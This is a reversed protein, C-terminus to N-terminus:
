LVGCGAPISCRRKSTTSLWNFVVYLVVVNGLSVMGYRPMDCLVLMASCLLVCFQLAHVMVSSTDSFKMDYQMSGQHIEKWQIIERRM